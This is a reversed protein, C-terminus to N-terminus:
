DIRRVEANLIKAWDCKWVEAACLVAAYPSPAPVIVEGHDPHIVKAKGPFAWRNARAMRESRRRSALKEESAGYLVRRERASM